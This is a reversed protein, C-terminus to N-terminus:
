KNDILRAFTNTSAIAIGFWLFMIRSDALSNSKLSELLLFAIVYALGADKCNNKIFTILKVIFISFLFLGIIGTEFLIQLIINHPYARVDEGLYFLGFSGIGHGIIPSELFGRWSSVFLDYRINQILGDGTLSSLRIMLYNSIPFELLFIIFITLIILSAGQRLYIKLSFRNLFYIILLLIFIIFPGRAALAVVITFSALHALKLLLGKEEILFFVSLLLSSSIALYDIGFGKEFQLYNTLQNLVFFYIVLSFVSLIYLIKYLTKFNKFDEYEKIFIM